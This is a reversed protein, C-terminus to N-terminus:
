TNRKSEPNTVPPLEINKRRETELVIAAHARAWDGKRMLRCSMFMPYGNISRPGQADLYEYILGLDKLDEEAYGEFAGFPIPMFIMKLLDVDSEPVHASSFIQQSVFDNVFTRLEDDTLHPLVRKGETKPSEDPSEDPM